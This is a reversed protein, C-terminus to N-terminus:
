QGAGSNWGLDYCPTGDVISIGVVWLVLASKHTAGTCYAFPYRVGLPSVIMIGQTPHGEDCRVQRFYLNNEQATPNAKTFGYDQLILIGVEISSFELRDTPIEVPPWPPYTGPAPPWNTAM